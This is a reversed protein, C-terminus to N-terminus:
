LWDSTLQDSHGAATETQYAETDLGNNAEYGVVPESTVTVLRANYAETDTPTFRPFLWVWCWVRVWALSFRWARYVNESHV